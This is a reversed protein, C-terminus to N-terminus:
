AGGHSRLEYFLNIAAGILLSTTGHLLASQLHNSVGPRWSAQAFSGAYAGVMRPLAVPHKGDPTYDTVTEWLAWGVRNGFGRCHCPQYDLPRKLVAALADTTSEQIIFEGINSTARRRYGAWGTGWEPPSHSLQDVEGYVLGEAVGYSLDRAFRDLRTASDRGVRVQASANSGIGVCALVALAFHLWRHTVNPQPPRFM